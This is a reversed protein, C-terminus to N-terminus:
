LPRSFPPTKPCKQHRSHANYAQLLFEKTMPFMFYATSRVSLSIPLVRPPRELEVVDAIRVRVWSRALRILFRERNEKDLYDKTLGTLESAVKATPLMSTGNLPTGNENGKIVPIRHLATTALGRPGHKLWPNVHRNTSKAEICAVEKEETIKRQKEHGGKM